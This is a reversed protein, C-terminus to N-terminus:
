FVYWFAFAEYTPFHTKEEKTLKTGEFNGKSQETLKKEIIKYEEESIKGMNYAVELHEKWTTYEQADTATNKLYGSIDPYKSKLYKKINDVEAKKAEYIKSDIEYTSYEPTNEKPIVRGEFERM